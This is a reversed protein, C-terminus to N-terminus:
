ARSRWSAGDRLNTCVRWTTTNGMGPHKGGVTALYIALAKGYMDLAEDYRGQAQNVDAMGHYTRGVEQSEPGFLDIALVLAEDYLAESKEFM